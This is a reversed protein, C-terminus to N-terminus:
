KESSGRLFYKANERYNASRKYEYFQHFSDNMYSVKLPLRSNKHVRMVHSPFTKPMQKLLADKVLLAKTQAGRNPLFEKNRYEPAKLTNYEENSDGVEIILFYNEEFVISEDVELDDNLFCGSKEGALVKKSDDAFFFYVKCFDFNEKFSNMLLLNYAKDKERIKNAQKRYGAKEYAQLSKTRTHLRVLVAGEEYLRNIAYEAYLRKNQRLTEEIPPLNEALMESNSQANASVSFFVTLFWFLIGKPYFDRKYFLLM